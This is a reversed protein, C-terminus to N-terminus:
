KARQTAMTVLQRFEDRRTNPLDLDSLTQLATGAFKEILAEVAGRAGSSIMINRVIEADQQSIHPNGIHTRLVAQEAQSAKEFTVQLLYTRKGEAIDGITSKGTTASDGFVGLLDDTLQFAVGLAEGYRKIADLETESAGALAAGVSLPGVFSYTATKLNAIKLADVRGVAQFSAETDLLEGAAVTIISRTLYRQALLIHRPSMSSNLLVDYAGSILLDGGLLAASDAYHKRDVTDAVLEQYLQQYTGSINSVGYRVDDRDIIDDHMLMSQHLLEQALAVPLVKDYDAGGFSEYALMTMYPRLRKGGAQSLRAMVKWLQAYSEDMGSALNIREKYFEDISQSVDQRVKELLTKQPLTKM